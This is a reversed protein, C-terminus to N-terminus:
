ETVPRAPYGKGIPPRPTPGTRVPPKPAAPAYSFGLGNLADQLWTSPAGALPANGEMGSLPSIESLDGLPNLNLNGQPRSFLGGISTALNQLYSPDYGQAPGTPRVAQASLISQPPVVQPKAPAPLLPNTRGTGVPPAAQPTPKPSFVAGIPNTSGLYMGAM